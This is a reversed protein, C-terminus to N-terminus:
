NVQNSINQFVCMKLNKLPLTNYGAMSLTIYTIILKTGDLHPVQALAPLKHPPAAEVNEGGALGFEGGVGPYGNVLFTALVIKYIVIQLQLQLSKTYCM